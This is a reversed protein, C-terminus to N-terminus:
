PRVAAARECPGHRQRFDRPREPQGSAFVGRRQARAMAEETAYPGPNHRYRYSWAFGERVMRAGLDEGDLRLRALGRGYDDNGRVTVEVHRHLVYGALADKSRVGAAQCIEPADIGDIRLKRAPGGDDPKVWVTDGDSVYSVMGAFGPTSHANTAVCLAASLVLRLVAVSTATRRNLGAGAAQAVRSALLDKM